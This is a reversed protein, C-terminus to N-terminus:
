NNILKSLQKTERQIQELRELIIVESRLELKLMTIKNKSDHILEQNKTEISDIGIMMEDKNEM